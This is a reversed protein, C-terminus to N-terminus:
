AQRKQQEAEVGGGLAGRRLGLDNGGLDMGVAGDGEAEGRGLGGLDGDVGFEDLTRL